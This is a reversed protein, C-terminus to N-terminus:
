RKIENIPNQGDWAEVSQDGRTLYGDYDDGTGSSVWGDLIFPISGDAPIWEGNYRRAFHLHAANSLGGECSPHGIKAGAELKSGNQVRGETGMHMYLLTWGTQEYGDGDLDLVVVGNGSRVVVGPASAVTWAKAPLCGQPDGVAFDLAAWGSGTDWGGHPGGTFSWTEGRVFPLTLQPQALNTPVLPEIAYDFPYGFLSKYTAFFGEESVDYEWTDRTYLLAFYNQLGATGANINPNVPLLSGDVLTWETVANARWLYYGHNLENATWVLQRYLGAYWEMYYRMPFETEDVNEQTVWGSQYELLALLLRPNVSYDQAVRTIIETGSLIEGDVEQQYSKLYGNKGKLYIEMNLLLSAPGYVLESDPIIKFGSGQQDAPAFQPKNPTPTAIAEGPARTPPLLTSLPIAVQPDAAAFPDYGEWDPAEETPATCAVLAFILLFLIIKRM